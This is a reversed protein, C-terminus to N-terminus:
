SRPEAPPGGVPATTHPKLVLQPLQDDAMREQFTSLMRTIIPVSSFTRCQLLTDLKEVSEKDQYLHVLTTPDVISPM